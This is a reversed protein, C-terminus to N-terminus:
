NKPRTSEIKVNLGFGLYFVTSSEDKRINIGTFGAIGSYYYTFLGWIKMLQGYFEESYSKIGNLGITHIWGDSSYHVPDEWPLYSDETIGFTLFSGVSLPQRCYISMVSLYLLFEVPIGIFIEVLINLIKGIIRESLNLRYIFSSILSAIFLGPILFFVTGLVIPGFSHTESSSGSVLCFRNEFGDGMKSRFRIKDLERNKGTSLDKIENTSIEKPFIGLNSFSDIANYYIQITEGFSNSLDLDIRIKEILTDLEDAEFENLFVSQEIIEDERIIEIIYKTKDDIVLENEKSYDTELAFAPQIGVGIFLAIIGLVFVKKM